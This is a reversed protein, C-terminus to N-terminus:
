RFENHFDKTTLTQMLQYNHELIPQMDVYMDKLQQTTLTSLETIIDCIALVQINTPDESYGEDWYDNFTRFGLRKLNQLFWQPGQVIFPTKLQIPRWIKEDLYFTNGTFYTLNVLEIFFDPYVKTINLTQPCLIPYEDIKDLTLPCHLLFTLANEVKDHELHDLMM